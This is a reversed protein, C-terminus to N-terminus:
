NVLETGSDWSGKVNFGEGVLGVRGVVCSGWGFDINIKKTYSPPSVAKQSDRGNKLYPM